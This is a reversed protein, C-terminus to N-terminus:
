QHAHSTLIEFSVALFKLICKKSEGRGEGREGKM